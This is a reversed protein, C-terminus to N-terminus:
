KTKRIKSILVIASVLSVVMTSIWVAIIDGTRPNAKPEKKEIEESAINEQTNNEVINEVISNSTDDDNKEEIKKYQAYLVYGESGDYTDGAKLWIGTGDAKTNWGEFDYGDKQPVDDDVVYDQGYKVTIPKVDEAVGGNM